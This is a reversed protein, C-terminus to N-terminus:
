RDFKKIKILNFGMLLISSTLVLMVINLIIQNQTLGALLLLLYGIVRGYNLVAERIAFFECQNDKGVIYSNSINYLRIDRTLQVLTSFIVYCANYLVITINNTLVLLILMYIVPLISSIIIINRDNKNKYRKGYIYVIVISLLTMISNIIGLNMDTKFSNFILITILVGLAGNSINMGIFFEVNLMRGIQKNNKIKLYISKLNFKSSVKEKESNLMFSLIIQMLSLVLIVVATLQYNTITILSALVIPCTVGIVRSIVTSKVTYNIREKNDIKNIVFLNYPFWYTGQSIGYIIAVIWLYNIIKEKLIIISIIYFFNLVVGFRFMGIRFKNKIIIAVVFSIIAVIIYSLIYYISLDTISEQSIKIFYATLFPGLFIGIIDKIANIAIIVNEETKKTIM